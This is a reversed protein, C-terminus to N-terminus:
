RGRYFWPFCQRIAVVAVEHEKSQKTIITEISKNLGSKVRRKVLTM